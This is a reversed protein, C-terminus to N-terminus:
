HNTIVIKTILNQFNKFNRGFGVWGPSRVERPAKSPSLLVDQWFFRFEPSVIVMLHNSIVLCDQGDFSWIVTGFVKQDVFSMKPANKVCSPKIRTESVQDSWKYDYLISNRPLFGGWIFIESDFVARSYVNRLDRVDYTPSWHTFIPRFGTGSAPIVVLFVPM